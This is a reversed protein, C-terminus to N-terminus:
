RVGEPESAVDTGVLRELHPDGLRSATGAATERWAEFEPREPEDLWIRHFIKQWTVSGDSRLRPHAKGAWVPDHLNVDWYIDSVTLWEEPGNLERGDVGLWSIMTDANLEHPHGPSPKFDVWEFIRIVKAASGMMACIGAPDATHQLVNYCWVEDFLMDPVYDEAPIRSLEIQVSEYRAQTWDPYICPDVVVGRQLGRCELLMSVPGGGIDLIKMGWMDLLPWRGGDNRPMMGMMRAYTVHKAQEGFTNRCDDWWDQEFHQENLWQERDIKM